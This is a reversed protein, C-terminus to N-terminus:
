SRVFGFVGLPTLLSQRIDDIQEPQYAQMPLQGWVPKPWCADGKFRVVHHFHLQSVINGIAAINLKDGKFIDMLVTSLLRSELWFQNQDKDSLQYIETKNPRMPVLVFWPYQSDNMLLLRCLPFQGITISDNSLREDLLFTMFYKLDTIFLDMM